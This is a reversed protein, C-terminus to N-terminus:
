RGFRKALEEMSIAVLAPRGHPCTTPSWVTALTDLISQMQDRNLPDGAKVASLCAAKMALQDRQEDMTGRCRDGEDILALLLQRPDQHALIEPVQRLIFTHQGFPEIEIGLDILLPAISELTDEQRHVLEVRQAPELTIRRNDHCLQEYLVQEHAAHQDAIVLGDPGQALIYTYHLQALARLTSRDYGLPEEGIPTSPHRAWEAFPWLYQQTELDQPYDQLANRVASIIAGYVTREQAFRVEAKRPHVNVDVYQPDISISLVSLPHRSPPLRREYPRELMISLIGPRVPRGNVSFHQDSRRSRDITPRSIYGEVCLDLAQWKVPIMEAAIDRGWVAGLRALASSPPAILRARQDAILRFGIEPYTVAFANITQQVLETERSRSKLFRRRAPMRSFLGRVAVSTGIPSGVLEMTTGNESTQVRTGEIQHRTRTIIDVDAVAVISSLAEGRFGLTRIAKLDDLTAIKSTSFRTLCLEADRRDMGCGDDAVRILVLGGGRIEVSISRAGADIANEVLEKVASAPREIVEGAAIHQRVSPPLVEISV